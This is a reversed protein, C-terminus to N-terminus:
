RRVLSVTSGPDLDLYSWFTQMLADSFSVMVAGAFIGNRTVRKSFVFINEGTLRSVLLGSMYFDAGESLAIFYDRDAVSVAEAGPVTAFITNASADIIYVDVEDPLGEVAAQ